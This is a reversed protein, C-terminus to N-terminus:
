DTGNELHRYEALGVYKANQIRIFYSNNAKKSIARVIGPKIAVHISKETNSMSLKQLHDGEVIVDSPLILYNSVELDFISSQTQDDIIRFYSKEKIPASVFNELIKAPRVTMLSKAKMDNILGNAKCHTILTQYGVSFVSCVTYFEIPSSEQPTWNRKIFESQVGALPMLLAGAFSDVLQEDSDKHTSFAQQESLVDLKLGHNFCHHGLEHACTYYRRPLPRQNSLIITPHSGNKQRTYLGEMNIDVFRVTIGLKICSDIIDIPQFIDLGLQTRIKDAKTVAKRHLNM